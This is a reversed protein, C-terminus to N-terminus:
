RALNLSGSSSMNQEEKGRWMRIMELYRLRFIHHTPRQAACIVCLTSLSQDRMRPIPPLGYKYKREAARNGHQKAYAIVALKHKITYCHRTQKVNMTKTNTPLYKLFQTPISPQRHKRKQSHTGTAARAPDRCDATRKAKAKSNAGADHAYSAPPNQSATKPCFLADLVRTFVTHKKKIEGGPGVM